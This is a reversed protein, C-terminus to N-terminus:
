HSVEVITQMHAEMQSMEIPAKQQEESLTEDVRYKDLNFNLLDSYEKRSYDFEAASDKFKQLEDIQVQNIKDACHIMM